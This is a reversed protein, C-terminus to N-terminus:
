CCRSASEPASDCCLGDGGPGLVRLEGAPHEADALVTHVEWAEGDPGDVWVKDQVAYCCSVEDETATDLGEGSLRTTATSPWSCEPCPHLTM